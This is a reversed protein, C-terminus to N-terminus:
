GENEVHFKLYNKIVTHFIHGKIKAHRKVSNKNEVHINCVWELMWKM